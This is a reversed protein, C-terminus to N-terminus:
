VNNTGSGLAWLTFAKLPNAPGRPTVTALLDIGKAIENELM